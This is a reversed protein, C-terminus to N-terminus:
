ESRRRQSTPLSLINKRSPTRPFSSDIDPSVPSDPIHPPTLSTTVMDVDQHTDQLDTQLYTFKPLNLDDDPIIELSVGDQFYKDILKKDCGEAALVECNFWRM